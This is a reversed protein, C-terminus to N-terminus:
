KDIGSGRFARNSHYHRSQGISGFGAAMGYGHSMAYALRALTELLFIYADSVAGCIETLGQACPEEVSVAKHAAALRLGKQAPDLLEGGIYYVQVIDVAIVDMPRQEETPEGCMGFDPYHPSEVVAPGEGPM